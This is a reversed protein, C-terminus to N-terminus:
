PSFPCLDSMACALSLFFVLFSTAHLCPEPPLKNYLPFFLRHLWACLLSHSGPATSFFAVAWPAPQWPVIKPQLSPLFIDLSSVCSWAKSVTLLAYTPHLHPRQSRVWKEASHNLNWPVLHLWWCLQLPSSASPFISGSLGQPVRGEWQVRRTDNGHSTHM